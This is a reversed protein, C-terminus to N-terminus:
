QLKMLLQSDFLENQDVPPGAFLDEQQCKSPGVWGAWFFRSIAEKALAQVANWNKPDDLLGCIREMLKSIYEMGDQDERCIKLMTKLVQLFDGSGSIKDMPEGKYWSEALPGALTAIVINEAILILKPDSDPDLKELDLGDDWIVASRYDEDPVLSMGLIKMGLRAAVVAHGAEHYACELLQEPSHM